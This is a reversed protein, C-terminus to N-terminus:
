FDDIPNKIANETNTNTADNKEKEKEKIEELNKKNKKITNKRKRFIRVSNKPSIFDKSFLDIKLPKFSIIKGNSDFTLRNSDFM